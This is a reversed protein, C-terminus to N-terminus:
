RLFPVRSRDPLDGIMPRIVSPREMACNLQLSDQLGSKHFGRSLRTFPFLRSATSTLPRNSEGNLGGILGQEGFSRRKICGVDLFMELTAHLTSSHKQFPEIAQDLFHLIVDTYVDLFIRQGRVM